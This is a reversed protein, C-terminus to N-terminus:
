YLLSLMQSRRSRPHLFVEQMAAAKGLIEESLDRLVLVKMSIFKVELSNRVFTALSNMRESDLM